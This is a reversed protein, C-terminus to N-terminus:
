ALTNTIALNQITVAVALPAAGGGLAAVMLGRYQDNGSLAHGGGDITMARSVSPLDGTTLTIDAGLVIQTVAPNTLAARLQAETTVITQASATRAALVIGLAIGLLRITRMSDKEHTMM